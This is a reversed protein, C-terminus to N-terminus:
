GNQKSSYQYDRIVEAFTVAPQMRLLMCQLLFYYTIAGVIWSRDMVIWSVEKRLQLTFNVRNVCNARSATVINTPRTCCESGDGSKRSRLSRASAAVGGDASPVIVVTVTDWWWHRFPRSPKEIIDFLYTHINALAETKHFHISHKSCKSHEAAAPRQNEARTDRSQLPSTASPKVNVWSVRAPSRTFVSNKYQPHPNVKM